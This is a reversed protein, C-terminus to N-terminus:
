IKFVKGEGIVFVSDQKKPRIPYLGTFAGFAPLLAQNEGFYFCPLSLSQRGSGRLTVGPHLHGSFVYREQDQQQLPDHSFVFPGNAAAVPYVKIGAKKYWAAPLIDHNGRVLEFRIRSYPEMWTRFIDFENNFESHFLDGLFFISEPNFTDALHSLCELDKKFVKLPVPIGAKRFHTAKGLHLDSLVLTKQQLWWIAKQPLLWMQQEKLEFLQAQGVNVGMM